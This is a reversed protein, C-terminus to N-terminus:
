PEDTLLVAQRARLQWGHGAQIWVHWYRSRVNAFGAQQGQTSVEGVVLVINDTRWWSPPMLVYDSVLKPARALFALLQSKSLTSEKATVYIFDPHLLSEVAAPDSKIREFYAANADLWPTDESAHVSTFPSVLVWLLATKMAYRNQWLWWTM